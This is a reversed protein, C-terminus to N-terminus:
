ISTSRCISRSARRAGARSRKPTGSPTPRPSSAAPIAPAPSSGPASRPQSRDRPRAGRDRAQAADLSDTPVGSILLNQWVTLRMDGDGFDRAIEALGRMQAVTIKGVPLVVGIWHLGPQKQPHIGIHATRDFPPRPALAGRRRRPRAQPRAKGGDAGPVERLASSDLLYKLRAKSRDTRDGHDIFVRVVADAVM